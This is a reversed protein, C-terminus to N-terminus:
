HWGFVNLTSRFLESDFTGVGAAFREFWEQGGGFLLEGIVMLDKSSLWQLERVWHDRV